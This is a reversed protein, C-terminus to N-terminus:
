HDQRRFCHGPRQRSRSFAPRSGMWTYPLFGCSRTRNKQTDQAKNEFTYYPLYLICFFIAICQFYQM